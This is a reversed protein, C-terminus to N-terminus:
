VTGSKPKSIPCLRVSIECQASGEPGARGDGSPTAKEATERSRRQCLGALVLLAASDREVQIRHEAYAQFFCPADESPVVNLTTRMCHVRSLERRSYLADELTQRQFNPTRAWLSLSPGTADTAHLAVVDRTIQAVNTLQSAPLLYQEHALYRNILSVQM